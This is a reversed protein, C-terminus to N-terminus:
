AALPDLRKVHGDVADGGIVRRRQDSADTIRDSAQAGSRDADIPEIKQRRLGATRLDHLELDTGVRDEFLVRVLKEHYQAAATERRQIGAVACLRGDGRELSDRAAIRDLGIQSLERDVEEDGILDDDRADNSERAILDEIGRGHWRAALRVAIGIAIKSM